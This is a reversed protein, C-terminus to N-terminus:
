ARQNALEVIRLINASEDIKRLLEEVLKTLDDEDNFEGLQNALQRSSMSVQVETGRAKGHDLEISLTDVHEDTLTFTVMM